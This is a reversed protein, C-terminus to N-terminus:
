VMNEVPANPRYAGQGGEGSRVVRIKAIGESMKGVPARPQKGWVRRCFTRLAMLSQWNKRRASEDPRSGSGGGGGVAVWVKAIGDSWKESLRKRGTMEGFGWVQGGSNGCHWRVNGNKRRASEAPRSGSGEGGGAEWVEAIGDSWTKSPRM